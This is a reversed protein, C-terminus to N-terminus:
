QTNIELSQVSLETTVDVSGSNSDLVKELDNEAHVSLESEPQIIDDLPIESEPQILEPNTPSQNNVTNVATSNETVPTISKEAILPILVHVNFDWIKDYTIYNYVQDISVVGSSEVHPDILIFNNSELHIVVFAIEDRLIIAYSHCLEIVQLLDMLQNKREANTVTNTLTNQDYISPYFISAEDLFIERMVGNTISSYNELGAMYLDFYKACFEDSNAFASRIAEYSEGVGRSICVCAMNTRPDSTDMFDVINMGSNSELLMNVLFQSNEKRTSTM